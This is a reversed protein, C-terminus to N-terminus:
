LGSSRSFSDGIIDPYRSGLELREANFKFGDSTLIFIKLQNM